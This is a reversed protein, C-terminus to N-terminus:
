SSLPLFLLRMLVIAYFLLCVSQLFLMLILPSKFQAVLLTFGDSRQKPKRLNAGYRALRQRAEAGTLGEKVTELDQLIETASVSWFAVALQKM